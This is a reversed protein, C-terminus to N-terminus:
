LHIHYHEERSCIKFGHKKYFRLAGENEKQTKVYVTNVGRERSWELFGRMLDSGAGRSRKGRASAMLIIRSTRNRIDITGALFGYIKNKDKALLVVSNENEHLNRVWLAHYRDVKKGSAFEINYLRSKRFSYGSIKEAERMDRKGAEAIDYRPGRTREPTKKLRLKSDVSSGGLTFGKEKLTNVSFVHGESVTFILYNFKLLAARRIATELLEAFFIRSPKAPGACTMRGIKKGFFSSDWKNSRISIKL